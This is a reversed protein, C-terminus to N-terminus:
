EGESKRISMDGVTFGLKLLVAQGRKAYEDASTTNPALVKSTQGDWEFQPGYDTGAFLRHMVGSHEDQQARQHGCGSILLLMSLICIAIRITAHGDSMPRFPRFLIAWPLCPRFPRAGGQTIAGLSAIARFPCCLGRVTKLIVGRM